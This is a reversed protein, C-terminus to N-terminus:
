PNGYTKKKEFKDFWLLLETNQGASLYCDALDHAHWLCTHVNMHRTDVQVCLLFTTNMKTFRWRGNQLM